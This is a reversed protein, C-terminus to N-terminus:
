GGGSTRWGPGRAPSRRRHEGRIVRLQPDRQRMADQRDDALVLPRARRDEIGIDLRGHRGVQLRQAALEVGRPDGSRQQDHLRIAPDHGAGSGCFARRVDDFRPRRGPDDGRGLERPPQADVLDDGEVHAARGGLRREDLAAPRMEGGLELDGGPQRGAAPQRAAAAVRQAHREDVEGLDAGAAPAQDPDVRGAGRLDARRRRARNGTRDAVALAALQRRDGVRVQQEAVEVRAPQEVPRHRQERIAGAGDELALDGVPQPQPQEVRRVAAVLQGVGAHDPRDLRHGDLAAPVRAVEREDREAPAARDVGGRMARSSPM